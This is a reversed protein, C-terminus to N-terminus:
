SCNNAGSLDSWIDSGIFVRFHLSITFILFVIVTGGNPVKGVNYIDVINAEFVFRPPKAEPDFAVQSVATALDFQSSM